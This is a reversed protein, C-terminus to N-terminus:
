KRIGKILWQDTFRNELDAKKKFKLDLKACLNLLLDWPLLNDDSEQLPKIVHKAFSYFLNSGVEEVDFGNKRLATEITKKGVLSVFYGNETQHEMHYRDLKQLFLSEDNNVIILTEGEPRTIRSIESLVQERIKAPLHELLGLCLVVDFSGDSLPLESANKIKLLEVNEKIGVSEINKHCLNLMAESIDVGTIQAGRQALPITVRGVGCAIDLVKKGAVDSLESLILGLEWASYADNIYDPLGLSLVAQGQDVNRARQNWYKAAKKADYDM